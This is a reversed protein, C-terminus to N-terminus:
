SDEDITDELEKDLWNLVDDISEVEYDFSFISVSDTASLMACQAVYARYIQDIHDRVIENEPDGEINQCLTEHSPLCYIILPQAALFKCFMEEQWDVDYWEPSGVPRLVPGYVPESLLRHRDFIVNQWGDNVNKEVWKKLDTLAKTDSGVAKEAIPWGLKESLEKVLTTKGAGDPGEVILM